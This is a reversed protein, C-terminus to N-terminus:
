YEKMNLTGKDRVTGSRNNEKRSVINWKNETGKRENRREQCKIEQKQEGKWGWALETHLSCHHLGKPFLTLTSPSQPVAPAPPSVATGQGSIGMGCPSLPVAWCTASDTHWDQSAVTFSSWSRDDTETFHTYPWLVWWSSYLKIGKCRHRSLIALDESDARLFSDHQPVTPTVESPIQMHALWLRSLPLM